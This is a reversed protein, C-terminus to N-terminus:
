VKALTIVSTVSRAFNNTFPVTVAGSNLLATVRPSIIVSVTSITFAAPTSSGAHASVRTFSILVRTPALVKWLM